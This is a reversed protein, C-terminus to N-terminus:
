HWIIKDDPIFYSLSLEFGGRSNSAIHFKSVNIDYSLCFDIQRRYNLRTFAILADNWRYYLGFYVSSAKERGTYKSDFGPIYRLSAGFLIERYKGQVMFLTSPYLMLTKAPLHILMDAHTNWRINLTEDYHLFSYDPRNVHFASLGINLYDKNLWNHTFLMGTSFDAYSSTEQFSTEGSPINTNIITGDFQSNWSLSNFDIYQSSYGAQIGMKLFTQRSFQIRSAISLHAETNGLHGDGAKDNFFVLGIAFKKKAFPADASFSFTRYPNTTVSKWQTRYNLIFRGLGSKEGTQAPNILLPTNEHQAFHIDQGNINTSLLCAIFLITSAARM